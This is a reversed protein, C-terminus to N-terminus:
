QKEKNVDTTKDIVEQSTTIKICGFDNFDEYDEPYSEIGYRTPDEMIDEEMRDQLVEEIYKQIGNHLEEDTSDTCLDEPLCEDTEYVPNMKYTEIEITIKTKM